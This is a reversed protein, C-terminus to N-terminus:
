SPLTSPCANMEEHSLGSDCSATSCSDEPPRQFGGFFLFSIEGSTRQVQKIATMNSDKNNYINM